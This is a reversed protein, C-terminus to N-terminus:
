FVGNARQMKRIYAILAPIESATMGPQPPMPGFKWHHQRAGFAIAKRFADDGHHGPRYTAHILPPGTKAGGANVGHCKACVREFSAKGAKATPSLAPVVVSVSADETGSGAILWGAAALAVVAGVVTSVTGRAIGKEGSAAGDSGSKAGAAATKKRKKSKAV